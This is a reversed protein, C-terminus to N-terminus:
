AYTDHHDLSTMIAPPVATALHLHWSSGTIGYHNTPRCTVLYLHWSSGTIGHYSIPCTPAMIIWHHWSPQNSPVHGSALFLHWSSGTIGPRCKVLYLHCTFEQSAMIASPIVRLWTYTGHHDLSAMIAPPVARSWTYTGHHVQSAM